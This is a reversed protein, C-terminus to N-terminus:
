APSIPVFVSSSIVALHSSYQCLCLFFSNHGTLSLTLCTRSQVNSEPNLLLSSRPSWPSWPSWTVPVNQHLPPLLSFLPNLLFHSVIFQLLCSPSLRLLLFQALTMNIGLNITKINTDLHQKTKRHSFCRCAERLRLSTVSYPVPHLLPSPTTILVVDELLGSPLSDPTCTSSTMESTSRPSHLLLHSCLVTSTSRSFSPPPQARIADSRLIPPLPHPTHLKM